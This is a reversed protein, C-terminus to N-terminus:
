QFKELGLPMVRSFIIRSAGIDFEVKINKHCVWTGFNMQFDWLLLYSLSFSRFSFRSPRFHTVSYWHIGIIKIICRDNETIRDDCIPFGDCNADTLVSPGIYNAYVAIHRPCLFDYGNSRSRLKNSIRLYREVPRANTLNLNTGRQQCKGQKEAFSGSHRGFIFGIRRSIEMHIEIRTDSQVKLWVFRVDHTNM